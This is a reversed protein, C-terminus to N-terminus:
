VQGNVQGQEEAVEMDLNVEEQPKVEQDQVQQEPEEPTQQAM